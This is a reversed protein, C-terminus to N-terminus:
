SSEEQSIRTEMYGEEEDSTLQMRQITQANYCVSLPLLALRTTIESDTWDRDKKKPTVTGSNVESGSNNKIYGESDQYFGSDDTPFTPSLLVSSPFTSLTPDLCTHDTEGLTCSTLLPSLQVPQKMQSSSLQPEHNLSQHIAEQQTPTSVPITASQQIGFTHRIQPSKRTSHELNRERAGTISSMQFEKNRSCSTESGLLDQTNSGRKSCAIAESFEELQDPEASSTEFTTSTTSRSDGLINIISVVSGPKTPLTHISIPNFDPDIEQFFCILSFHDDWLIISLFLQHMSLLGTGFIGSYNKSYYPM